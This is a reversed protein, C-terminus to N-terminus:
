ASTKEEDLLLQALALFRKSVDLGPDGEVVTKGMDEYRIIDDSRPIDAVIPLGNADAFARVKEEERDVARGFFM